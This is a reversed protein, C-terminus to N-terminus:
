DNRNQSKFCFLGVSLGSEYRGIERVDQRALAISIISVARRVEIFFFQERFVLCSESASEGCSVMDDVQFCVYFHAEVLILDGGCDEQVQSIRDCM